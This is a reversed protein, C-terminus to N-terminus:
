WLLLTKKSKTSVMNPKAALKWRKLISKATTRVSSDKKSKQKIFVALTKGIMTQKLIDVTMELKDIIELVNSYDIEDTETTLMDNCNIATQLPSKTQLLESAKRKNGGSKTSEEKPNGGKPAAKKEGKVNSSKNPKEKKASVVAPKTAPTHKVAAATSVKHPMKREDDSATKMYKEANTDTFSGDGVSDSNGRAMSAAASMMSDEMVSSGGEMMARRSSRSISKRYALVNGSVKARLLQAGEYLMANIRSVTELAYHQLQKEASLETLIIDEKAEAVKSQEIMRELKRTEEKTAQKLADYGICDATILTSKLQQMFELITTVIVMPAGFRVLTSVAVALPTRSLILLVLLKAHWENFLESDRSVSEAHMFVIGDKIDRVVELASVTASVQRIPLDQAGNMDTVKDSEGIGDSMIAGQSRRTFSIAQVNALDSHLQIRLGRVHKIIDAIIRGRKEGGKGLDSIAENLRTHVDLDPLRIDNTAIYGTKAQQRLKDGASSELSDRISQARKNTEEQMAQAEPPVVIDYDSTVNKNSSEGASINKECKYELERFRRLGSITGGGDSKESTELKKGASAVGEAPAPPPAPPVHFSNLAKMTCSKIAM